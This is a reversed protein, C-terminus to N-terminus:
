KKDKLCFIKWILIKIKTVFFFCFFLCNICAVEDDDDVVAAADDAVGVVDVDTVSELSDAVLIPLTDVGVVVFTTPFVFRLFLVGLCFPAM